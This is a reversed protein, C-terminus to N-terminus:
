GHVLLEIAKLAQRCTPAWPTAGTGRAQIAEITHCAADYGQATTTEIEVAVLRHAGAAASAFAEPPVDAGLELCDFGALRVLDAVVFIPLAHHEGQPAGVVV